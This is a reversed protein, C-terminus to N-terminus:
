PFNEFFLYINKASNNLVKEGPSLIHNFGFVIQMTKRLITRKNSVDEVEGSMFENINWTLTIDEPRDEENRDEKTMWEQYKELHELLKKKNIKDQKELQAKDAQSTFAEIFIEINPLFFFFALFCRWYAPITVGIM